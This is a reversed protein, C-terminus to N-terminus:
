LHEEILTERANEAESIQEDSVKMGAVDNLIVKDLLKVYWLIQKETFQGAYFHLMHPYHAAMTEWWEDPLDMTSPRDVKVEGVGYARDKVVDDLGM